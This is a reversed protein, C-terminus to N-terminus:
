DDDGPAVRVLTRGVHGGALLAEFVEPLDDLSVTGTVIRDLHRPRLPGALREWVHARWAEPCNASSV